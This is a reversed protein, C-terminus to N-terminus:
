RVPFPASAADPVGAAAADFLLITKKSSGPLLIKDFSALGSEDTAVRTTGRLKSQSPESVTVTVPVRPVPNGFSDTVLVTPPGAIPKSVRSPAPQTSIALHRPPAFRINFQASTVPPLSPAAFSLTHASAAKEIILSPFTATGNSDSTATTVTGNAFPGQALTATVEVGPVPEGSSSLVRVAPAPDVPRGAISQLPQTSIELSAPTLPPAPTPEPTPTPTPSTVVTPAPTPPPSIKEAPAPEPTAPKSCAPLLLTATLLLLVLIPQMTPPTYNASFPFALPRPSALPFKRLRAPKGSPTTASGVLPAM